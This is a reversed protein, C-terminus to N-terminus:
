SVRIDNLRQQIESPALRTLELRGMPAFSKFLRLDDHACALIFGDSSTTHTDPDSSVEICYGYDSLLGLCAEHLPNSHTSVFVYDVAKATLSQSAGQLMEVEFGQIDSHLLTLKPHTNAHLHADVSFHGNGVFDNIFRGEYDNLAFNHQGAALNVPDPEVLTVEADAFALKMWMSYHGWYAGLELMTIPDSYHALRTLLTQFCFEELPEHVGRNLILIDSFGSYYAFAGRVPVKNGNHLVVNGAGDLYGSQPVRNIM